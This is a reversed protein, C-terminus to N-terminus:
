LFNTVVLNEQNEQKYRAGYQGTLFRNLINKGANVDANDGHGCSLCLFKEGNRNGRNSHGCAPCTTSTHYPSVTRFSVRNLECQMELRKLWYKWNWTGISARISKSLRAKLKSKYGMNKLQEVVILDPDESKIIEKATEDIRQKLARKAVYYGNSKQKCRKVREICDKIDKGYQNGNNLSALANIGTDIGICKAGEKKAETIIEFSFQVYNKTIIYSNLRKGINNYKNFHKHYKIPLDMIMKNGVSAIHLWADFLRSEESKYGNNKTSVLDAITCSVYMRNGKHVPIVMKEPKDKWRTKTALVMDIAERAAVKRLRASLWTEPIDVIDKLLLVKSAKDPNLWFYQIFINVVKGYENLITTLELVKKKTSFKL